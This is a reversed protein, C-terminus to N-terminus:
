VIRHSVPTDSAPHLSGISSQAEQEAMREWGCIRRVSADSQIREILARTTPLNFISKAIFARALAAQDKSPRGVFGRGHHRPLSEEIRILELAEVLQMQKETLPGLREELEPFLTDQIRGWFHSLTKFM